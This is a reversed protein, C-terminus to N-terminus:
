RFIRRMRWLRVLFSLELSSFTVAAFIGLIMVAANASGFRYLIAAIALLVIGTVTAEIQIMNRRIERITPLFSNVVEAPVM